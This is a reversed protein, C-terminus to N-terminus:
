GWGLGLVKLILCMDTEGELFDGAGMWAGM